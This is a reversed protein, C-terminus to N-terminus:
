AFSCVHAAKGAYWLQLQKSYIVRFNHIFYIFKFIGFHETLNLERWKLLGEFFYTEVEQSFHLLGNILCTWSFKSWLLCYHYMLIKLCLPYVTQFSRNKKFVTVLVALFCGSSCRSIILGIKQWDPQLLHCDWAWVNTM